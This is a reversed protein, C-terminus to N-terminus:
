QLVPQASSGGLGYPMQMDMLPQSVVIPAVFNFPLPPAGAQTASAAATAAPKLYSFVKAGVLASAAFSGVGTFITRAISTGASVKDSYGLERYQLCARTWKLLEDNPSTTVIPKGDATSGTQESVMMQQLVGSKLSALSRGYIYQAVNFDLEEVLAAKQKAFVVPDNISALRQIEYDVQAFDLDTFSQIRQLFAEARKSDFAFGNKECEIKVLEMDRRAQSTTEDIFAQAGLIHSRLRENTDQSQTLAVAARLQSVERQAREPEYVSASAYNKARTQENLTAWFFPNSASRSFPTSQAYQWSSASHKAFDFQKGQMDAFYAYQDNIPLNAIKNDDDRSVDANAVAQMFMAADQMGQVQMDLMDNQNTLLKNTIAKAKLDFPASALSVIQNALQASQSVIDMIAQMRQTRNGEINTPQPSIDTGSAAPAYQAGQVAKLAASRSMGAQMMQAVQNAPLGRQYALDSESKNRQWNQEGLQYQLYQQFVNQLADLDGGTEGKMKMFTALIPDGGDALIEAADGAEDSYTSFLGQQSNLKALIQQKLREVTSNAIANIQDIIQQQNM